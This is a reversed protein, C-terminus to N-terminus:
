KRADPNQAEGFAAKHAFGGLSPLLIGVAAQLALVWPNAKLAPFADTAQNLINMGLVIANLWQGGAFLTKLM